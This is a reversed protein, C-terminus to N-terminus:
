NTRDKNNSQSNDQSYELVTPIPTTQVMQMPSEQQSTNQPVAINESSGNQNCTM